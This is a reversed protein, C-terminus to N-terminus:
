PPPALSRRRLKLRAQLVLYLGRAFSVAVLGFGVPPLITEVFYIFADSPGEEGFLEPVPAFLVLLLVVLLAGSFTLWYAGVVLPSGSLGLESVSLLDPALANTSLSMTPEPLESPLRAGPLSNLVVRVSEEDLGQSTLEARAEERSRGQEILARAREFATAQDTM